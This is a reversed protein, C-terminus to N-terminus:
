WVKYWSIEVVPLPSHRDLQLSHKQVPCFQLSSSLHIGVYKVPDWSYFRKVDNCRGVVNEMRANLNTQSHWNLKEFWKSLGSSILRRYNSYTQNRTCATCELPCSLTLKHLLNICKCWTCSYGASVLMLMIWFKRWPKLKLTIKRTHSVSSLKLQESELFNIQFYLLNIWIWNTYLIHALDRFREREETTECESRFLFKCPFEM